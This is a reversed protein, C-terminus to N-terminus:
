KFLELLRNNELLESITSNTDGIIHNNTGNTWVGDEFNLIYIDVYMQALRLSMTLKNELYLRSFNHYYNDGNVSINNYYNLCSAYHSNTINLKTGCLICNNILNQM